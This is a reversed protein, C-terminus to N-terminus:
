VIIQGCHASSLYINSRSPNGLLTSYDLGAHEGHKHCSSILSCSVTKKLNIELLPTDYTMATIIIYLLMYFYMLSAVAIATM